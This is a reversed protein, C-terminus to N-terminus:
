LRWGAEAGGMTNYKGTKPTLIGVPNGRPDGNLYLGLRARDFHAKIAKEINAERDCDSGTFSRNCRAEYSRYLREALGRVTELFNLAEVASLHPAEGFIVELDNKTDNDTWNRKV